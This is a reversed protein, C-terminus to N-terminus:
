PVKFFCLVVYYVSAKALYYMMQIIVSSCGCLWRSLTVCVCVCVFISMSVKCYELRVTKLSIYLLMEFVAMTSICCPSQSDFCFYLQLIYKMYILKNRNMLVIVSISVYILVQWMKNPQFDLTCKLIMELITFM